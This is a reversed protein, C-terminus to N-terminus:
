GHSLRRLRCRRKWRGTQRETPPSQFGFSLWPGLVRADNHDWSDEEDNTKYFCYNIPRPVKTGGYVSDLYLYSCPLIKALQVVQLPTICVRFESDSPVDRLNNVRTRENDKDHYVIRIPDQEVRNGFSGWLEIEDVDPVNQADDPREIDTLVPIHDVDAHRSPNQEEEISQILLLKSAEGPKEGLQRQLNSAHSDDRLALYDCLERRSKQHDESLRLSLFYPAHDDKKVNLVM